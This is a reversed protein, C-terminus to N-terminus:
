YFVPLAETIDGDPGLLLYAADHERAFRLVADLDDPLDGSVFSRATPVFWGLPTDTVMLPRAQADTETWELLNHCTGPSLHRNSLPLVRGAMLLARDALREPALPEVQTSLYTDPHRNFYERVVTEDDLSAHDQQHNIEPWHERCFEALQGTLTPRSPALFYDVGDCHDISAFHVDIPWPVPWAMFHEAAADIEDILAHRTRNDLDGPSELATVVRALLALHRTSTLQTM